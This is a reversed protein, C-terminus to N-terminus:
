DRSPRGRRQWESSCKVRSVTQTCGSPSIAKMALSPFTTPSARASTRCGIGTPLPRVRFDEQQSAETAPASSVLESMSLRWEIQQIAHHALNTDRTCFETLHRAVTFVFHCDGLVGQDLGKGRQVLLACGSYQRAPRRETGRGNREAEIHDPVIDSYSTFVVQCIACQRNQEVIKRNLLKRMEAKSRLERYGRPHHPDEIRQVGLRRVRRGKQIPERGCCYFSRHIPCLEKRRPKM